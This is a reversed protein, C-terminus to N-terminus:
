PARALLLQKVGVLDVARPQRRRPRPERLAPAVGRAEAAPVRAPGAAKEGQRGFGLSAKETSRWTGADSVTTDARAMYPAKEMAPAFTASATFVPRNDQSMPIIGKAESRWSTISRKAKASERFILGLLHQRLRARLPLVRLRAHLRRRSPLPDPDLHPVPLHGACRPRITHRTRPLLPDFFAM